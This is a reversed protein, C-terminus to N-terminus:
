SATFHCPLYGARKSLCIRGNKEDHEHSSFEHKGRPTKNVAKGENAKTVRPSIRTSKKIKGPNQPLTYKSFDISLINSSIM